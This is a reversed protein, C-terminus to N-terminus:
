DKQFSEHNLYAGLNPDQSHTSSQLFV